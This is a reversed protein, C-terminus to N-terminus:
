RLHNKWPSLEDYTLRVLTWDWVLLPNKLSTFVKSCIWEHKNECLGFSRPKGSDASVTEGGQMVQGSTQTSCDCAAFRRGGYSSTFIKGYKTICYFSVTSCYTQLNRLRGRCSFCSVHTFQLRMVAHCWLVTFRARTCHSYWVPLYVTMLLIIDILRSQSASKPCIGTKGGVSAWSGSTEWKEYDVWHRAGFIWM